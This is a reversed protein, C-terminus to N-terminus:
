LRCLHLCHEQSKAAWRRGHTNGKQLLCPHSLREWMTFLWVLGPFGKATATAWINRRVFVSHPNPNETRVNGTRLPPLALPRLSSSVASCSESGGVMLMAPAGLVGSHPLQGRKLLVPSLTQESGQSLSNGDAGGPPDPM